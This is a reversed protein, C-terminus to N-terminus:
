AHRNSRTSFAVRSDVPINRRHRGGWRRAFYEVDGLYLRSTLRAERGWSLHQFGSSPYRTPEIVYKLLSRTTFRPLPPLPPWKYENGRAFSFLLGRTAPIRSFSPQVRSNVVLFSSSVPFGNTPPTAFCNFYCFRDRDDIITSRGRKWLNAGEKRIPFEFNSSVGVKASQVDTLTKPMSRENDAIMKVSEPRFHKIRKVCFHFIFKVFSQKNTAYFESFNFQQESM